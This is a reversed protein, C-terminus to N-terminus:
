APAPVNKRNARGVVAKKITTRKAASKAKTKLVPVYDELGAATDKPAEVAKSQEEQRLELSKNEAIADIFDPTKIAPAERTMFAEVARVVKAPAKGVDAGSGTTLREINEALSGDSSSDPAVPPIDVEVDKAQEQGTGTELKVKSPATPLKIRASEPAKFLKDAKNDARKTTVKQKKVVKPTSSYVSSVAAKLQGMMYECTGCVWDDDSYAPQLITNPVKPDHCKQHFGQQCVDCIVIENNRESHEGDCVCCVVDELDAYIDAELFQLHLESLIFEFEANDEFRVSAKRNTHDLKTLEVPYYLRNAPWKAFLSVKNAKQKNALLDDLHKLSAPM